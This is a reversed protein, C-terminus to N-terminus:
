DISNLHFLINLDFFEDLEQNINNVFSLYLITSISGIASHTFFKIYNKEIYVLYVYIFLVTIGYSELNYIQLVSFISILYLYINKNSKLYSLCNILIITQFLIGLTRNDFIVKGGITSSSIDFIFILSGFLSHIKNNLLEFLLHYILISISFLLISYLIYFGLYSNNFNVFYYTVKTFLFLLPSHPEM